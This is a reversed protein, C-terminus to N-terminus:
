YWWTCAINFSSEQLHYKNQHRVQCCRSHVGFRVDIQRSALVIMNLWVTDNPVYHLSQMAGYQPGLPAYTITVM